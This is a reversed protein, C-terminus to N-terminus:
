SNNWDISLCNQCEKFGLEKKNEKFYFFFLLIILSINKYNEEFIKFKSFTHNVRNENKKHQNQKAFLDIQSFMKLQYKLSFQNWFDNQLNLKIKLNRFPLYCKKLQEIAM